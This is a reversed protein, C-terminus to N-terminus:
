MFGRLEEELRLGALLGSLIDTGSTHGIGLVPTAHIRLQVELQGDGRPDPALLVHLLELLCQRARGRLAERLTTRSLLTTREPDDDLVRGIVPTIWSLRSRPQAALLAMGTLFDDGAPTLGPGLGLLSTAAAAVAPADRRRIATVLATCAHALQNRIEAEFVTVAEGHARAGGRVGQVDLLSALAKSRRGLELLGLDVPVLNTYWKVAKSLQVVRPARGPFMIAASSLRVDDGTSLRWNTWHPVDARVSWPADDLESACLAILRGDGSIVNVVRNFVSHVRGPGPHAVLHDVAEADISLACATARLTITSIVGAQRRPLRRTAFGASFPIGDIDAVVTRTFRLELCRLLCLCALQQPM